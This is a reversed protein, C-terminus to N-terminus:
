RETAQARLLRDIEAAILAGARVLNSLQDKPKWYEDSWPWLLPTIVTAKGWLAYCAGAVALEGNTHKDDHGPTWGEADMQRQREQAILVAGPSNVKSREDQISQWLQEHRQRVARLRAQFDDAPERDHDDM